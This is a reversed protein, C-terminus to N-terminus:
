DLEGDELPEASGIRQAVGTAKDVQTLLGNISLALDRMRRTLAHTRQHDDARVQVLDRFVELVGVVHEQSVVHGEKVRNILMTIFQPRNTSIAASVEGPLDYTRKDDSM